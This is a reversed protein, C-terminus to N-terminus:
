KVWSSVVLYAEGEKENYLLARNEVPGSTDKGFTQINMLDGEKRFAYAEPNDWLGPRFWGPERTFISSGYCIISSGYKPIGYNSDGREWYWSLNGYKECKM